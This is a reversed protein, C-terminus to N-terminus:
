ARLEQGKLEMKLFQGADGQRPLGSLRASALRM